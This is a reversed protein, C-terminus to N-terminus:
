PWQSKFVFISNIKHTDKQVSVGIGRGPWTIVDLGTNLSRTAPQTGLARTAQLMQARAFLAGVQLSGYAFQAATTMIEAVRGPTKWEPRGTTLTGGAVYDTACLTPSGGCIFQGKQDTRDIAIGGQEKLVTRVIALPVGIAIPGMRQGPDVRTADRPSQAAMGFLLIGLAARKM